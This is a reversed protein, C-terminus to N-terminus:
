SVFITNVICNAAQTSAFKLGTGGPLPFYVPSSDKPLVIGLAASPTDGNLTVRAANTEVTIWVGGAKSPFTVTKVDGTGTSTTQVTGGTVIPRQTFSKM